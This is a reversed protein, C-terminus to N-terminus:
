IKVLTYFPIPLVLEYEYMDLLLVPEQRNVYGRTSFDYHIRRRISYFGDSIRTDMAMELHPMSCMCSLSFPGHLFGMCM